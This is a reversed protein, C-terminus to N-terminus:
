VCMGHQSWLSCPLCAEPCPTPVQGAWPSASKLQCNHSRVTSKFMVVSITDAWSHKASGMLGPGWLYAPPPGPPAWAFGKLDRPLITGDTFYAHRGAIQPSQPGAGLHGRKEWTYSNVQRELVMSDNQRDKFKGNPSDYLIVRKHRDAEESSHNHSQSM